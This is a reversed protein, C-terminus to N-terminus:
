PTSFHTNATYLIFIVSSGFHPFILDRVGRKKMKKSNKAKNSCSFSVIAAIQVPVPPATPMMRMEPGRASSATRETQRPLRM